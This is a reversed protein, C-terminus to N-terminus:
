NVKSGKIYKAEIIKRWSEFEDFSEIKQLEVILRARELEWEIGPSIFPKMRNSVNDKNDYVAIEFGNLLLEPPITAVEWDEDYSLEEGIAIEFDFGRETSDRAFSRNEKKYDSPSIVPLRLSHEQGDEEWYIVVGLADFGDEHIIVLCRGLISETSMADLTGIRANHIYPSGLDQKGNLFALAEKIRIIRHDARSSREIHLRELAKLERSYRELDDKDSLSAIIEKLSRIKQERRSKAQPWIREAAGLEQSRMDIDNAIRKELPQTRLALFLVVAVVLIGALLLVTLFLKSKM